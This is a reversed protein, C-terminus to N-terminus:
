SVIYLKCLKLHVLRLLLINSYYQIYGCELLSILQELLPIAFHSQSSHLIPQARSCFEHIRLRFLDDIEAFLSDSRCKECIDCRCPRGFKKSFSKNRNQKPTSLNDMWSRTIPSGKSIYKIAHLSASKKKSIVLIANPTCSHPFHTLESYFVRGEQIEDSKTEIFFMAKWSTSETTTINLLSKSIVYADPDAETFMSTKRLGSLDNQSMSGLQNLIIRPSFEEFPRGDWSMCANDMSTILEGPLIDTSAVM